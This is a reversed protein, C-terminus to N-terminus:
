KRPHLRFVYSPKRNSFNGTNAGKRIGKAANTYSSAEYFQDVSKAIGTHGHDGGDTTKFFVIDGAKIESHDTIKEAGNAPNALWPLQNYTGNPYKSSRGIDAGGNRVAYMTFASCDMYKSNAAGLIYGFNTDIMTKGAAATSENGASGPEATPVDGIYVGNHTACPDVNLFDFPNDSVSKAQVKSYMRPLNDYDAITVPGADLTLATYSTKLLFKSEFIVEDADAAKMDSQHTAPNVAVQSYVHKVHYGIGYRDYGYNEAPTMSEMPMYHSHHIDVDGVWLNEFEHTILEPHLNFILSRFKQMKGIEKSSLFTLYHKYMPNPIGKVRLGAASATLVFVESARTNWTGMDIPQGDSINQAFIMPLDDKFMYRATNYYSSRNSIRYNFVGMSEAAVLIEDKITNDHKNPTNVLFSGKKLSGSIVETLGNNHNSKWSDYRLFDKISLISSVYPQGLQTNFDDVVWGYPTTYLPYHEFFFDLVQLNTEAEMKYGSKPASSVVVEEERSTMSIDFLHSHLSGGHTDETAYNSTYKRLLDTYLFHIPNGSGTAKTDGKGGLEFAFNTEIELRYRLVSKLNVTVELTPYTGFLQNTGTVKLNECLFYNRFVPTEKKITVASISIGVIYKGEALTSITTHDVGILMLKVDTLHTDHSKIIQLEKIQNGKLTITGLTKRPQVSIDKDASSHQLYQPNPYINIEINNYRVPISM